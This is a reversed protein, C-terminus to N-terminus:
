VVVAASHDGCRSHLSKEQQAVASPTSASTLYPIVPLRPTPSRVTSCFPIPTLDAAAGPAFDPAKGAAPAPFVPQPTVAPLASDACWGRNRAFSVCRDAVLTM